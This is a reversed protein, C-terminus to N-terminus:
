QRTLCAPALLVGVGRCGPCLLLLYLWSGSLVIANKFCVHQSQAKEKLKDESFTIYGGEDEWLLLGLVLACKTSFVWSHYSALSALNAETVIIM